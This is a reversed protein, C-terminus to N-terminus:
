GEDRVEAAPSATRRRMDIWSELYRRMEDRLSLSEIALKQLGGAVERLVAVNDAVAARREWETERDARIKRLASEFEGADAAMAEADTPNAQVRTIFAAIAASERTDDYRTVEEHYERMTVQMQDAVAVLADSAALEMGADGGCGATTATAALAAILLRRGARVHKM